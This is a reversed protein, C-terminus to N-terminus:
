RFAPWQPRGLDDYGLYIWLHGRKVGNAHDSDLVRIGTDDAGIHRCLAALAWIRLVLRLLLPKGAAQAVWAGMTSDSLVVGQRLYIQAQRYLPCHDVYKSVLVQALLGAGCLGGDLMKCVAPAIVVHKQCPKCALKEREYQLVIFSAPVFELVESTDHGMCTREIGCTPCARLADPVKVEIIKRELHAPLPNRGPRRQPKSPEPEPEPRPEPLPNLPADPAPEGNEQAEQAEQALAEEFLLALQASSVQETSQGFRAKVLAALRQDLRTATM